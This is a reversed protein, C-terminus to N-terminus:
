YCSTYDDLMKKNYCGIKKTISRFHCM